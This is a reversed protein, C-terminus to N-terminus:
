GLSCRSHDPPAGWRAQRASKPSAAAHNTTDGRLNSALIFGAVEDFGIRALDLQAREAEVKDAVVFGLDGLDRSSGRLIALFLIM